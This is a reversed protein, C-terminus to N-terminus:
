PEGRVAGAAAENGAPHPGRSAGRLCVHRNSGRAVMLVGPIRERSTAAVVARVAAGRGSCTGRTCHSASLGLEGRADRRGRGLQRDRTANRDDPMAPTHSGEDGVRDCAALRRLSRLSRVSQPPARVASTPTRIFWRMCSAPRRRAIPANFASPHVFSHREYQAEQHTKRPSERRPPAPAIIVPTAADNTTPRSRRRGDPPRTQGRHYLHERRGDIRRGTIQGRRQWVKITQSTVGFQAAIEELTLMGAARLREHHSAIGRNKCLQTLPPVSFPKGWGGTLGKDNLIEVTEDYTHDDLLRDILKITSAPTTHAEWARLPRPVTLTHQQGGSLRIHATIQENGRLLTVDTVLLRILRKRERIPTAPNRWLATLDTALARIRAQQQDTLPPQRRPHRARIRRQRRRARAAQQEL